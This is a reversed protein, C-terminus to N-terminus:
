VIIAEEMGMGTNAISNQKRLSDLKVEQFPLTYIRGRYETCKTIAEQSTQQTKKEGTKQEAALSKFSGGYNGTM